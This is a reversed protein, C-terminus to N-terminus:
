SRVVQWLFMEMNLPPFPKKMIAQSVTRFKICTRIHDTAKPVPGWNSVWEPYKVLFIIGARLFNELGRQFTAKFASNIPRQKQRVLEMGEKIPIARHILGPYFGRLDEYSWDFVDQFGGLLKSFKMEEKDSCKAAIKVDKSSKPAGINLSITEGVKRKSEEEKQKEKNGVDSLSFSSELPTLGKPIM